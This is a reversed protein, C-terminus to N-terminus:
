AHRLKQNETFEAYFDGLQFSCNKMDKLFCGISCSNEKAKDILFLLQELSIFYSYFLEEKITLSMKELKSINDNLMNRKKNVGDININALAKKRKEKSMLEEDIFHFNINRLFKILEMTFFHDNFMYLDFLTLSLKYITQNRLNLNEGNAFVIKKDKRLSYEHLTAQSQSTIIMSSLDFLLDTLNKGTLSNKTITKKKTEIFIIYDSDFYVIDCEGKTGESNQYNGYFLKCNPLEALRNKIIKEINSGIDIYKQNINADSICNYFGWGSFPKNLLLFYEKYKILPKEPFTIKEFDTPLLYTANVITTSCYSLIKVEKETFCQLSLKTPMLESINRNTYLKYILDLFDSISFGIDKEFLKSKEETTELLQTLLSPFIPWTVQRIRFLNDFMLHKFITQKSLNQYMLIKDTNYFYQLEYLSIFDTILNFLYKMRDMNTKGQKNFYKVSLNLLYRVPFFLKLDSGIQQTGAPFLYRNCVKNYNSDNMYQLVTNLVNKGGLEQVLSDIKKAIKKFKVEDYFVHGNATQIKYPRINSNNITESLKVLDGYLITNIKETPNYFGIVLPLILDWDFSDFVILQINRFRDNLFSFVFHRYDYKIDKEHNLYDLVSQRMQEHMCKRTELDINQKIEGKQALLESLKLIKENKTSEEDEKHKMFFYMDIKKLISSYDKISNSALPNM